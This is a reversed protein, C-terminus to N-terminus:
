DWEEDAYYREAVGETVRRICTIEEKSLRRKWNQLNARSAIQTAYPNEISTEKPNDGSSSAAVAERVMSTFPLGLREYLAAFGAVPEWSLNEQRLVIFDPFEREYDAVVAYIVRWLLAVRSVLDHSPALAAEMESRFPGLRDRVLNRQELLHTFDFSWGLRKWSSVVAAPHRVTVVVQSRLRRAFWEASFVAHPEKVLPRCGRSRVFSRWMKLTHRLDNRSRCKKFERALPYRFELAENLAPLFRHENESTVYVYWHDTPVRITGPSYSLNFPENVYGLLESAILMRGVWTTGSRAM